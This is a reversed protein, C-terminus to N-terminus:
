SQSSSVAQQPLAIHQSPLLEVALPPGCKHQRKWQAGQGFWGPVGVAEGRLYLSIVHSGVDVKNFRRVFCAGRDGRITSNHVPRHEIEGDM